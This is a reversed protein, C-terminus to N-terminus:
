KGLPLGDQSVRQPLGLRQRQFVDPSSKAVRFGAAEWVNKQSECLGFICRQLSRDASVLKLQLDVRGRIQQVGDKSDTCLKACNGHIAFVDGQIVLMLKRM